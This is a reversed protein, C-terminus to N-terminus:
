DSELPTSKPDSPTTNTWDTVYCYFPPEGPKADWVQLNNDYGSAALQVGNAVCLAKLETTFKDFKTTM